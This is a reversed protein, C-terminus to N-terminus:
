NLQTKTNDRAKQECESLTHITYAGLPLGVAAIIILFIPLINGDSDTQRQDQMSIPIEETKVRTEFFMVATGLVIFGLVFLMVIAAISRRIRQIHSCNFM